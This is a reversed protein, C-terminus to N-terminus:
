DFYAAKKTTYRHQFNQPQPLYPYWKCHLGVKNDNDSDLTVTTDLHTNLISSAFM